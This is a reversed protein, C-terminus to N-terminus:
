IVLRLGHLNALQVRSSWPLELWLRVKLMDVVDDHTAHEVDVGNVSVLHDGAQLVDNEAAM